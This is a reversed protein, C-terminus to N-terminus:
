KGREIHDRVLREALPSERYTRAREALSHAIEQLPDTGNEGREDEARGMDTIEELRWRQEEFAGGMGAQRAVAVVTGNIAAQIHGEWVVRDVVVLVREQSQAVDLLFEARTWDHCAGCYGEQRDVPHGSTM